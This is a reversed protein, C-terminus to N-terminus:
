TEAMQSSYTALPKVSLAEATVTMADIDVMKIKGHAHLSGFTQVHMTSPSKPIGIIVSEDLCTIQFRNADMIDRSSILASGVRALRQIASLAIKVDGLTTEFHLVLDDVAAHIKTGDYCHIVAHLPRKMGHNGKGPTIFIM